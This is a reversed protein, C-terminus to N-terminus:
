MITNTKGFINEKLIEKYIESMLGKKNKNKQSTLM